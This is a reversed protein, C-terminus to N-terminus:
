RAQFDEAKIDCKRMLRYLSGREVGAHSAAMVVNGGFHELLASLYRATIERNMREAADKYSLEVLEAMSTEAAGGPVSSGLGLSGAIPHSQLQAATLVGSDAMLVAVAVTNELERVNGPWHYGQLLELAEPEISLAARGERACHKAVFHEALDPIDTPRERLPPIALVLVNLRYFLDERFRGDSVLQKLDVNTAAVFRVNIPKDRVEGVPRIELEQIARNLKVQVDLPLEGIEDLFATGRDAEELLGIKNTDAGSFAGKAHGFLESEMLDKPMAGCNIPVFRFQTRKSTYHIARAFLEKGTGSEGTILVTTDSGAAKEVLGLCRRIPPSDGIISGVGHKEEVQAQLESARDHLLKHQLARDITIALQDPDFPKTIYDYAGQKMAEVAQAVEGYATMLIVVVEPALRKAEVLLQMGSMGPMRIDTVVLDFDDEKLADLGSRGDAATTIDHQDSLLRCFLKLMNEKDDVVLIHARAM